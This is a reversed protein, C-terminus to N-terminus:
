LELLNSILLNAVNKRATVKATKTV